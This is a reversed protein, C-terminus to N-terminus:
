SGELFQSKAMSVLIAKFIEFSASGGKSKVLAKTKNWVTQNKANALFDQGEWTLAGLKWIDDRGSPIHFTRALGKQELLEIHYNIQEPTYGEVTPMFFGKQTAEEEARLLLERILDMDREM